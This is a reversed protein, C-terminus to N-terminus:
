LCVFGLNCLLPSNVCLLGLLACDSNHECKQYCKNGCPFWGGGNTTAKLLAKANENPASYAVSVLLVILIAVSLKANM